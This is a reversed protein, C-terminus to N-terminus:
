REVLAKRIEDRLRDRPPAHDGRRASTAALIARLLEVHEQDSACASRRDLV